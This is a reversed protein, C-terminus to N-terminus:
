LGLHQILADQLIKSFNLGAAEARQNLWSPITCNKKVSKTDLQKRYEKTDIDVLIAPLDSFIIGEEPDDAKEKAIRRATAEDSPAPLPEDDLSFTGILDRAMCIADYMSDGETYANLDPVYVFYGDSMQKIFTVYIGKM